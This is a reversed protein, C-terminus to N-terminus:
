AAVLSRGLLGEGTEPSFYYLRSPDVTLTVRGAVEQM